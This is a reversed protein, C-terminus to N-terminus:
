KVIEGTLKDIKIVPKRETVKPRKGGTSSKWESDFSDAYQGTSIRWTVHGEIKFLTIYYFQKQIPRKM